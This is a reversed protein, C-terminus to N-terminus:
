RRGIGLANALEASNRPARKKTKRVPRDPHAFTTPEPLRDPNQYHPRAALHGWLDVREAVIAL